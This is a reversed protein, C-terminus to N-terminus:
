CYSRYNAIIQLKVMVLGASLYKRRFYKLLFIVAKIYNRVKNFAITTHFSAGGIIGILLPWSAMCSNAKIVAQICFWVSYDFVGSEHCFSISTYILTIYKQTRCFKVSNRTRNGVEMSRMYFAIYMKFFSLLYTLLLCDYKNTQHNNPHKNTNNTKRQKKNTYVNSNM